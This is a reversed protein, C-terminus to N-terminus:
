AVLNKSGKLVMFHGFDMKEKTITKFKKMKFSLHVDNRLWM